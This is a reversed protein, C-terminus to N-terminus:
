YTKTVNENPVGNRGAGAKECSAFGSTPSNYKVTVREFCPVRKWRMSVACISVRSKLEKQDEKSCFKRASFGLFHIIFTLM